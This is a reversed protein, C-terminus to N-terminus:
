YSKKEFHDSIANKKLIILFTHLSNWQDRLDCTSIYFWTCGVPDCNISYMMHHIQLSICMVILTYDVPISRAFFYYSFYFKLLCDNKKMMKQSFFRWVKHKDFNRPFIRPNLHKSAFESLTTKMTSVTFFSFLCIILSTRSYTQQSVLSLPESMNPIIDNHKKLLGLCSIIEM